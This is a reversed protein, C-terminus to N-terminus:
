NGSPNAPAATASTPKGRKLTRALTVVGAAVLVLALVFLYRGAWGFIEFDRGQVVTRYTAGSQQLAVRMPEDWMAGYKIERGNEDRVFIGLAKMGNEYESVYVKADPHAAILARVEAPTVLKRPKGGGVSLVLLAAMCLTGLAVWVIFRKRPAAAAPPAAPERRRIRRHQWWAYMAFGVAVTAYLLWIWATAVTGMWPYSRRGMAFIFAFLLCGVFGVVVLRWFRGVWARETPSQAQADGMQWGIYGGLAALLGFVVATIGVGGASSAAKAATSSKTASAAGVATALGASVAPLAAVVNLTFAQGPNSRALTGEVLALVQEHLLARGRSLRQKVADESLELERAVNEVSKQERYFLVLPERYNEPIKELARWLLAAEEQSVAQEPPSPEPTVAEHAPDFPEALHAPERGARRQANSIVHRAIGCLWARLKAPERLASLQKWAAVFTDQALEESRSLSGTASYALSCILAQYRAVIRGFADRNGALSAHVLEADNQAPASMPKTAIM